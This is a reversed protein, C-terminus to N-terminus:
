KAQRLRRLVRTTTGAMALEVKQEESPMLVKVAAVTADAGAAAPATTALENLASVIGIVRELKGDALINNAVVQALAQCKATSEDVTTQSPPTPLSFQAMFRNHADVLLLFQAGLDSSLAVADAQQSTNLANKGALADAQAIANHLAARAAGYSVVYDEANVASM